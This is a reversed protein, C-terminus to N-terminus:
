RHVDPTNRARSSDREHLHAYIQELRAVADAAGFRAALSASGEGLRTRLAADHGVLREAYRFVGRGIGFARVGVFAVQLTLIPPQLAAMSILYASTAMLAVSSLLALAGLIGALLLRVRLGRSFAFVRRLPHQPTQEILLKQERVDTTASM